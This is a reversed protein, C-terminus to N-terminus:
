LILQATYQSNTISACSHLLFVLQILVSRCHHKSYLLLDQIYVSLPALLIEQYCSAFM